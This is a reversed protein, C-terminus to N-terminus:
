LACIYEGVFTSAVYKGIIPLGAAQAHKRTTMICIAAGDGIGSANGATTTRDGWEFVPKLGALSELTVGPRITDDAQVVQGRLDIPIIEEAFIGKNAAQVRNLLQGIYPM